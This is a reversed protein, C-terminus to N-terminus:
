RYDPLFTSLFTHINANNFQAEQNITSFEQKLQRLSQFSSEILRQNTELEHIKKENIQLM